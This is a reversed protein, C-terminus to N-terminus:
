GRRIKELRRRVDEALRSDLPNREGGLRYFDERERLVNRVQAFLERVPLRYAGKGLSITQELADGTAVWVKTEPPLRGLCREIYRDATEDERTYVVTVAVSEEVHEVGGKVQHADFVLIVQVGKWAGYEALIAMLKDRAHEFSRERLSALEPCAYLANYGDVILLESM